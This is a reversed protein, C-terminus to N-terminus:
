HHVCSHCGHQLIEINRLILKMLQSFKFQLAQKKWSKGSLLTIQFTLTKVREKLRSEGGIGEEKLPIQL